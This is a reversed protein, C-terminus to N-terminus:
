QSDQIEEELAACLLIVTNQFKIKRTKSLNKAEMGVSRFFVDTPDERELFFRLSDATLRQQLPNLPGGRYYTM